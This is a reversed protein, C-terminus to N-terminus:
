EDERTKIIGIGKIDFHDKIVNMNNALQYVIRTITRLKRDQRELKRIIGNTGNEDYVSNNLAQVDDELERIRDGGDHAYVAQAITIIKNHVEDVRDFIRKGLWALIGLFSAILLGIATAAIEIVM